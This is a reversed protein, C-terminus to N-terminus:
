FASGFKAARSKAPKESRSPSRQTQRAPSQRAPSQPAPSQPAPSQPAPSQPAVSLASLAGWGKCSRSASGASSRSSCRAQLRRAARRPSASLPQAPTQDKAVRSERAGFKGDFMRYIRRFSYIRPCAVRRLHRGRAAVKRAFCPGRTWGSPAERDDCANRHHRIFLLGRKPSGPEDMEGGGVSRDGVGHAAVDTDCQVREFPPIACSPRTAVLM